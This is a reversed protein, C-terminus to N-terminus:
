ADNMWGKFGNRVANQRVRHHLIIQRCDDDYVFIQIYSEAESRCILGM